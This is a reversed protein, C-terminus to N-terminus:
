SLLSLNRGEHTYELNREFCLTLSLFDVFVSSFPVTTVLVEYQSVQYKSIPIIKLFFRKKKKKKKKEEKKRRRQEEEEKKRRNTKHKTTPQQKSATNM